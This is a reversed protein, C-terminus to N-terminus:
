VTRIHELVLGSTPATPMTGLDIRLDQAPVDYTTATTLLRVARETLRITVWEGACRHATSFDGGGQPVFSFPSGDWDRFREPRFVEPDGWVRSDRNTAYLDLLLWDGRQFRRGRWDFEERVRGGVLPFFPYYRRVEQVFRRLHGDDEAVGPRSEPNEHLAHAAFVIFRGVAVTPRLVNVLEVAAVGVDLLNGDPGRHTAVVQLPRGEAVPLRGDRTQAVLDRVWQEARHRLVQGRWNRPGFAGAGEFMAVFQRTREQVQEPEDPLPVGSWECVARFLVEQVADLLVVRETGAWQEARDRWHREFLDALEDLAAPTMMSMFMQKRVRHEEGDLVLVSGLDQLLTLTPLPLAGRRTLRDPEYFHRAAEEGYTFVARTLMLRTDFLDSGARAFRRSGFLYGERLLNVSADVAELQPGVVDGVRSGVGTALGLLDPARM